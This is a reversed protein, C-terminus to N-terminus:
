VSVNLPKFCLKLWFLLLIFCFSCFLFCWLHILSPNDAQIILSRSSLLSICIHFSAILGLHLSIPLPSPSPLIFLFSPLHHILLVCLIAHHLSRSTSRYVSSRMLSRVSISPHVVADMVSITKSGRTLFHSKFHWRRRRRPLWEDM